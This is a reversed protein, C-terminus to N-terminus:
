PWAMYKQSCGLCLIALHRRRRNLIEGCVKVEESADICTYADGVEIKHECMQCKERKINNPKLNIGDGNQALQMIGDKELQMLLPLPREKLSEGINGASAACKSCLQISSTANTIEDQKFVGTGKRLLLREACFYPENNRLPRGCSFCVIGSSGVNNALDILKDRFAIYRIMEEVSFVIHIEKVYAGVHEPPLDAITKPQGETTFQELFRPDDLRNFPYFQVCINNQMDHYLLPAPVFTKYNCNSCQFVNITGKLLKEKGEPNLQANLSFWIEMSSDKYCQPCLLNINTKVTM